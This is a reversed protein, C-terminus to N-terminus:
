AANEGSTETHYKAEEMFSELAETAASVNNQRYLSLAQVFHEKAPHPTQADHYTEGLEHHAYAMWIENKSQKALSLAKHRHNLSASIKNLKREAEGLNLYTFFSIREVESKKATSSTALNGLKAITEQFFQCAELYQKDYIKLCGLNILTHCLSLDDQYDKARKLAQRLYSEAERHGQQSLTTGILILMTIERGHDGCKKALQFAEQFAELAAKYDDFFERHSDGLRAVLYHAVEFDKLRKAAEAAAKHLGFSKKSHGRATYYAADGVVLLQMLTVLLANDGAARATQAAGLLNSIDADLEDFDHQHNELFTKCAGQATILRFHNNARGFSYALDHVRYTVVDSGPESVREALGRKQLTFLAEETEEESRRTCLSLLEPTSSTTFLAGFGMFAEYADEPLANLSATLLATVSERGEEAFDPPTKMRHPADTVQKLLTTPTLEDVQLNIGAIRLAFAHDGLTECLKDADADMSLDVQAHHSLLELGAERALRGVDLRKIKPYRQRSTVLFPINEPVAEIVKSLAYANWVDDLVFLSIKHKNLLAKITNTKEANKAQSVQQQAEFARALADFLTDPPDDGAQLWLVNDQEDSIYTEAIAAALATKGTGGFGHLLVCKQEKLATLTDSILEARGVLKDPRAPVEKGISVLVASKGSSVGGGEIERLLELTDELPEVGLEDKLVQRCGEFQALAAETNGRRHELRMIARHANENLKDKELLLHALDLADEFKKKQELEVIRKQLATLYLQDLRTRELELWNMFHRADGLDLGKLLTKDGEDGEHWIDLADAFHDENVAEEFQKVDTVIRTKVFKDTTELWDESGPLDRLKYLAFRVNSSKGADWFLELLDKRTRAETQVALYSLLGLVKPSPLPTVEGDLVLKPIGLLKLELM